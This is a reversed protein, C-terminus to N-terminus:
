KSERWDPIGLAVRFHQCVVCYDHEPKGCQDPVIDHGNHECILELFRDEFECAKGQPSEDGPFDKDAMGFFEQYKEFLDIMKDITSKMKIREDAHATGRKLQTGLRQVEARAALLTDRKIKNAQQVGCSQAGAGTYEDAHVKLQKLLDGGAFLKQIYDSM